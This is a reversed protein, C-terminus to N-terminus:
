IRGYRGRTTLIISTRPGLGSATLVNGYMGEVRAGTAKPMQLSECLGCTKFESEPILEMLEEKWIRIEATKINNRENEVTSSNRNFEWERNENRRWEALIRLVEDQEDVDDLDEQCDEVVDRRIKPEVKDWVAPTSGDGKHREEQRKQEEELEEIRADLSERILTLDPISM